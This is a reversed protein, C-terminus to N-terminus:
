LLLLAIFLSTISWVMGGRRVLGTARDIDSPTPAVTGGLLPAPQWIGHYFAGGGLCLGLAGGGSAMVLTANPSKRVTCGRWARLAGRRDGLLLYTLATLRAPIYGLVDDLRAAAWGFQRYRENRYGWMADLTNALRFLVVGPGGLVIFWFMAAFVADCGNELVSEVTARAVDPSEMTGTERSVIWGVRQRAQSLDGRELAHRVRRAHDELSKGGLALYLLIIQAVGSGLWGWPEGFSVMGALVVPPVLVLIVAVGGALRGRWGEMPGCGRLGREVWGAMRGFGVLPHFRGPEGLWRDLIWGLGVLGPCGYSFLIM